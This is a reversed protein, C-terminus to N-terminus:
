SRRATSVRHCRRNTALNSARYTAHVQAPEGRAAVTGSRQRDPPCLRVSIAPTEPARGGVEPRDHHLACSTGLGPARSGRAVSAAATRARARRSINHGHM